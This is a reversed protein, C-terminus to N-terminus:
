RQIHHYLNGFICVSSFHFQLNVASIKAIRPVIYIHMLKLKSHSVCTEEKSIVWNFIYNIVAWFYTNYYNFPNSNHIFTFFLIIFSIM